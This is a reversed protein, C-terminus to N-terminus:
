STMYVPNSSICIFNLDIVITLSCPTISYMVISSIASM